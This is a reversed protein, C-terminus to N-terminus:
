AIIGFLLVLIIISFVSLLLKFESLIVRRRELKASQGNHSLTTSIKLKSAAASTKLSRYEPCRIGRGSRILGGREYGFPCPSSRCCKAKRNSRFGGYWAARRVNQLSAQSYHRTALAGPKRHEVVIRDVTHSGKPQFFPFPNYQSTGKQM